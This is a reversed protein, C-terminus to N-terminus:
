KGKIFEDNWNAPFNDRELKRLEQRKIDINIKSLKVFNIIRFIFYVFGAILFMLQIIKTLKSTTDDILNNNLLFPITEVLTLGWFTGVLFDIFNLFAKVQQM